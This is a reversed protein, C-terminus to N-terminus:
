INKIKETIVKSLYKSILFLFSTLINLQFVLGDQVSGDGVHSMKTHHRGRCPDDAVSIFHVTQIAWRRTLRSHTPSHIWTTATTVNVKWQYFPMPFNWFYVSVAKTNRTVWVSMQYHTTMTKNCDNSRLGNVKSVKCYMYKLIASKRARMKSCCVYSRYKLRIYLTNYSMTTSRLKHSFVNKPFGSCDTLFLLIYCQGSNYVSDFTIRKYKQVSKKGERWM